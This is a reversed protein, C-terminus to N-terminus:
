SSINQLTRCEWPPFRAELFERVHRQYHERTGPRAGRVEVLYQDFQALLEEPSCRKASVM